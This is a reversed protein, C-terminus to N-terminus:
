QRVPVRDQLLPTDPALIVSSVKKCLSYGSTVGSITHHVTQFILPFIDSMGYTSMAVEDSIWTLEFVRLFKTVIRARPRQATQMERTGVDLPCGSGFPGFAGPCSRPQAFFRVGNRARRVLVMELARTKEGRM